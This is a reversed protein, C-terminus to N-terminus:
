APYKLTSYCGSRSKNKGNCWSRVTSSEVGLEIAALVSSEYRVGDIFWWRSTRKNLQNEQRTTIRVNGLEYNGNNDERDIEMGKPIEGVDRFFAEFSNFWEDCVDIGRGGYISYNLTNPNRCRQKMSAWIRYTRTRRMGHSFKLNFAYESRLCGCSKTHGRNVKSLKVTTTNGCDCLCDCWTATQGNRRDKYARLVTLRSMKSNPIM